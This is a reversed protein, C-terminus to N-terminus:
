FSFTLSLESGLETSILGKRLQVVIHLLFVLADFAHQDKDGGHREQHDHQTKGQEDEKFGFSVLLFLSLLVFTALHLLLNDLCNCSDNVSYSNWRYVEYKLLQQDPENLIFIVLIFVAILVGEDVFQKYELEDVGVDGQEISSEIWYILCPQGKLLDIVLLLQLEVIEEGQQQPHDDLLTGGDNEGSTRQLPEEEPPRLSRVEFANISQCLFLLNSIAHVLLVHVCLVLLLLVLLDHLFHWLRYVLPDCRLIWCELPNDKVSLISHFVMLQTHIGNLNIVQHGALWFYSTQILGWVEVYHKTKGGHKRCDTGDNGDDDEQVGQNFDSNVEVGQEVEM